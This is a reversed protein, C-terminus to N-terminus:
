VNFREKVKKQIENYEIFERNLLSKIYALISQNYGTAKNPRGIILKYLEYEPQLRIKPMKFRITGVTNKPNYINELREFHTHEALLEVIVNLFSLYVQLDDGADESIYKNLKNRIDQLSFMNQEVIKWNNTFVPTIFRNFIVQKLRTIYYPEQKISATQSKGTLNNENIKNIGSLTLTTM